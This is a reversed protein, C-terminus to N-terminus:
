VAAPLLGWVKKIGMMAPSRELERGGCFEVPEKSGVCQDTSVRISVLRLHKGVMPCWSSSKWSNSWHLTQM